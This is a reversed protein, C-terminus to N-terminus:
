ARPKGIARSWQSLCAIALISTFWISVPRNFLVSELASVLLSLMWAQVLFELLARDRRDTIARTISAIWRLPVVAFCVLVLILGPWGAAILTELYGNHASPLEAANSNDAAVSYVQATDWFTGYGFGFVPKTGIAQMALQWVEDRGTFTPDTVAAILAKIAPMAVSGLTFVLLLGVTLVTLFLSWGFSRSRAVFASTILLPLVLLAATKGGSGILLVVSGALIALGWLLSSSRAVLIGVSIFLIAMAALENKHSFVGRWDGALSQATVDRTTHMSLEPAFLLGLLSAAIVVTTSVGLAKVFDSARTFLLPLAMAIATSVGAVALRNLSVGRYPSMMSTFTFWAFVAVLSLTVTGLLTQLKGKHWVYLVAIFAIGLTIYKRFDKSATPDDTVAYNQLNMFPEVQTWLALITFVAFLFVFIRTADIRALADAMVTRQDQAEQTM